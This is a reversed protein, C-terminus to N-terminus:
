KRQRDCKNTLWCRCLLGFAKRGLLQNMLNELKVGTQSSLSKLCQGALFLNDAGACKVVGPYVIGNGWRGDALIDGASQSIGHAYTLNYLEALIDGPRAFALQARLCRLSLTSCRMEHGIIQLQLQDGSASQVPCAPPINLLRQVNILFLFCQECLQFAHDFGLVGVAAAQLLIQQLHLCGPDLRIM